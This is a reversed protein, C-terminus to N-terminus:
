WVMSVDIMVTVCVNGSNLLLSQQNERFVAATDNVAVIEEIVNTTTCFTRRTIVQTAM